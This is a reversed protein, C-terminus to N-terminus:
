QKEESEWSHKIGWGFGTGGAGYKRSAIAADGRETEGSKRYREERIAGWRVSGSGGSTEGEVDELRKETDWITLHEVLKSIGTGAELGQESELLTSLADCDKM